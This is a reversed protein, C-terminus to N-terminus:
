SSTAGHPTAFILAKNLASKPNKSEPQLTHDSRFYTTLANLHELVLNHHQASVDM